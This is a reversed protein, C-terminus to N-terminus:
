RIWCSFNTPGGGVAWRINSRRGICWRTMTLTRIARFRCLADLLGANGRPADPGYRQPSYSPFVPPAYNNGFLINSEVGHIVHDLSLTDIEYEYSYIYTPTGTREIARALRRAECVFQVDGTVRAMAEIPAPVSSAPDLDAPYLALVGPAYPGFENIVWTRYQALSVGSPFSRIIFAGWGEDRTFGIITPVRHFAGAEFLTRPQEPIVVGDVM